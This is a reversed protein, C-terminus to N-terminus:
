KIQKKKKKEKKQTKEREEARVRKEERRERKKEGKKKMKKETERKKLGKGRNKYAFVPSPFTAPAAVTSGGSWRRKLVHFPHCTPTKKFTM